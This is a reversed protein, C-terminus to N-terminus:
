RKTLPIDKPSKGELIELAIDAALIGQEEAIKTLGFVAYPMLFDNCTFTPIRTNEKVFSIAEEKDWNKIAGNSSLLILDVQQNGIIFKDKWSEFDDVLAFDVILGAEEYIPALLEVNKLESTTNEALLM